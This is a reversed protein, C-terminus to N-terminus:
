PLRQLLRVLRKTRRSFLRPIYHRGAARALAEGRTPYPVIAGALASLKLRKRIMLSLVLAYEGAQPGVVGGGILQGDPRAILKVLGVEDGETVARDTEAFPHRLIEIRGHIERAAAETLGVQLLEPETYTVWPVARHDVTAPLRFLARKIVVGAHHSAMHTLRYPGVADGVAFVRKNTTRLGADVAIAKATAAIGALDLGLGEVHPVRGAAVLLHSGALAAPGSEGTLEVTVGDARWSVRSAKAGELLVVGERELRAAVVQALEPDDRPLLRSAQILTVAAGLRRYAQAMEVGMPGGGLVILHTPKPAREFLTENTLYPGDGLGPVPPVAPRSGTALVFRRARITTEGAVVTHRDVFRAEALLVTVGLAEFRARSDQPALSAIARRMEGYGAEFGDGRAAAALLAKSPVCGSYLCEGGPRAREILAV